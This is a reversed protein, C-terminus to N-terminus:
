DINMSYVMNNLIEKDYKMIIFDYIISSSIINKKNIDCNKLLNLYEDKVNEYFIKNSCMEIQRPEYVNTHSIINMLMNLFTYLYLKNDRACLLKGCKDGFLNLENKIGDMADVIDTNDLVDDNIKQKTEDIKELIEDNGDLIQNLKEIKNIKETTHTNYLDTYLKIMNNQRKSYTNSNIDELSMGSFLIFMNHGFKSVFKNWDADSQENICFKNEIDKDEVLNDILEALMSTIYGKYGINEIYCIPERFETNITYKNNKNNNLVEKFIYHKLCILFKINNTYDEYYKESENNLKTTHISKNNDDYIIYKFSKNTYIFTYQIFVNITHDIEDIIHQHKTKNDDPNKLNDINNINDIIINKRINEILVDILINLNGIIEYQLTKDDGLHDKYIFEILKNNEYTDGGYIDNNDDEVIRKMQECRDESVNSTSMNIIRSPMRSSTYPLTIPLSKYISPANSIAGTNSKIDNQVDIENKSMCVNNNIDNAYKKKMDNIDHTDMVKPYNLKPLVSSDILLLRSLINSHIISKNNEEDTINRGENLVINDVHGYINRKFLNKFVDDSLRYIEESQQKDLESSKNPDHKSAHDSIKEEELQTLYKTYKLVEIVAALDGNSYSYLIKNANAKCKDFIDLKKLNDSSLSSANDNIVKKVSDGSLNIVSM